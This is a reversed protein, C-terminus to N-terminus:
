RSQYWDFACICTISSMQSLIAIRRTQQDTRGNTHQLVNYCGTMCYTVYFLLNAFAELESTVNTSVLSSQRLVSTSLVPCALLLECTLTTARKLIHPPINLSRKISFKLSITVTFLEFIPYHKSSNHSSFRLSKKGSVTYVPRAM